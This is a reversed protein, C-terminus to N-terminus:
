VGAPLHAHLQPPRKIYSKLKMLLIVFVEIVLVIEIIRVVRAKEKAKAKAATECAAEILMEEAGVTPRAPM